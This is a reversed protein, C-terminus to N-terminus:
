IHNTLTFFRCNTVFTSNFKVYVLFNIIFVTFIYGVYFNYNFILLSLIYFFCFHIRFCSFNFLCCDEIVESTAVRLIKVIFTKSTSSVQPLRNASECSKLFSFWLNQMFISWNDSPSTATSSKMFRFRWFDSSLMWRITVSLFMFLM